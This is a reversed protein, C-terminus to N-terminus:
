KRTELPIWSIRSLPNPRSFVGAMIAAVVNGDIEVAAAGGALAFRDLQGVIREVADDVTKRADDRRHFVDAIVGLKAGHREEM